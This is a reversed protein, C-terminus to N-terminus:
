SLKGMNDGYKDVIDTLGSIAQFLYTQDTSLDFKLENDEHLKEKFFGQVKAHGLGHFLINLELNGEYSTLKASGKLSAYCVKLQKYFEFIEGTTIYLNGNVSYNSCTIELRSQTDYGGFSSTKEPFDYVTEIKFYVQGNDARIIFEDDYDTEM